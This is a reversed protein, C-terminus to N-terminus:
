ETSWLSIPKRRFKWNLLHKFIPNNGKTKVIPLSVPKSMDGNFAEELYNKAQDTNDLKPTAFDEPFFRGHSQRLKNREATILSSNNRLGFRLSRFNWRELM